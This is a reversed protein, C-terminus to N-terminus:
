RIGKTIFLDYLKKAMEHYSPKDIHTFGFNTWDNKCFRELRDKGFSFGGTDRSSELSNHQRAYDAPLKADSITFNWGSETTPYVSAYAVYGHVKPLLLWTKQIGLLKGTMSTRNELVHTEDQVDPVDMYERIVTRGMETRGYNILLQAVIAVHEHEIVLSVNRLKALHSEKKEIDELVNDPDVDEGMINQFLATLLYEREDSPAARIKRELDELHKLQM